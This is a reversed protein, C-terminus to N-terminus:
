RLGLAELWVRNIDAYIDIRNLPEQVISVICSRAVVQLISGSFELNLAELEIPRAYGPISVQPSMGVGPPVM